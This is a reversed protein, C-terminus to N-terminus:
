IRLNDQIMTGVLPACLNTFEREHNIQSLVGPNASKFALRMYKIHNSTFQGLSSSEFASDDYNFVFNDAVNLKRGNQDTELNPTHGSLKLLQTNFWFSVISPEISKDDLAAFCREILEFYEPELQDETVKNVKKILEYGIMTRNLDKVINGFHKVLRTSILTGIEGRGRIFTIQSVSFLEIGGALKSNVKKVGKALLRLKGEDKSLFTIIRDAEGFNTRSLIVGETVIQNM